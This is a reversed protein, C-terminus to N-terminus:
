VEVGPQLPIVVVRDISHYMVVAGAAFGLLFGLALSIAVLKLASRRIRRDTEDMCLLM